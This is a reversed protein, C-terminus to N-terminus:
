TATNLRPSAASSTSRLQFSRPRSRGEASARSRQSCLDKPRVSRRWAWRGGWALRSYRTLFYRRSTSIIRDDRAFHPAASRLRPVQQQACERFASGEVATPIVIHQSDPHCLFLRSRRVGSKWRTMGLPTLRLRVCDLSRSNRLMRSFCIGGSRDPHCYTPLRSPLRASLQSPLFVVKIPASWGEVRDDRASHPTASRLRPVQQQKKPM